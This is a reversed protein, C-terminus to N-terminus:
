LDQFSFSGEKADRRGLNFPSIPLKCGWYRENHTDYDLSYYCHCEIEWKCLPPDTSTPPKKDRNPNNPLPTSNSERRKERVWRPTCPEPQESAIIHSIHSHMSRTRWSTSKYDEAIHLLRTRLETFFSTRWTVRWWLWKLSMDYYDKWHCM